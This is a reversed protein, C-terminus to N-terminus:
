SSPHPPALHSCWRAPTSGHAACTAFPPEDISRTSTSATAASSFSGTTSRRSITPWRSVAGTGPPLSTVQSRTRSTSWDHGDVSDRTTVSSNRPSSRRPVAPQGTTSRGGGFVGIAPCESPAPLERACRSRYRRDNRGFGDRGARDFPQRQLRGPPVGRAAIRSRDARGVPPQRRRHLPAQRGVRACRLSPRPETPEDGRPWETSRRLDRLRCQNAAHHWAPALCRSRAAGPDCRDCRRRVSPDGSSHRRAM